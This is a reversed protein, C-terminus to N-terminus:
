YAALLMCRKICTLEAGVAALNTVVLLVRVHKGCALHNEEEEDAPPLKWPMMKLM